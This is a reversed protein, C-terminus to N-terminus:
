NGKPIFWVVNRGTFRKGITEAEEKTLTRRQVELEKSLSKLNTWVAVLSIQLKEALEEITMEKKKELLNLIKDQAM